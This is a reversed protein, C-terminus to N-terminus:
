PGRRLTIREGSGRGSVGHDFLVAPTEQVLDMAIIGRLGQKVEGGDGPRGAAFDVVHGVGLREVLQLAVLGQRAEEARGRGGVPGRGVFRLRAHVWLSTRLSLSREM